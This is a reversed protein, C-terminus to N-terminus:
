SVMRDSAILLLLLIIIVNRNFHINFYISRKMIIFWVSITGRPWKM